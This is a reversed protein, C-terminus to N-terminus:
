RDVQFCYPDLSVYDTRNIKEDPSFSIWSVELVNSLKDEAFEVGHSITERIAALIHEVKNQSQVYHVPLCTLKYQCLLSSEFLFKSRVEHLLSQRGSFKTDDIGYSRLQARLRADPWALYPASTAGHYKNSILNILDDRKAEYDSKIYGHQVLYDRIESDYWGSWVTSKARTYHEDM